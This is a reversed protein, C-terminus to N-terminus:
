YQRRRGRVATSVLSILTSPHFPRELFTVNGLMGSLRSSGAQEKGGHHTMLVIPMDSWAPQERLWSLLPDLDVGRLAEVAIILMGAGQELAECLLPLNGTVIGGYGAEKLMMLALAGDRGMPALIIARESTPFLVNM